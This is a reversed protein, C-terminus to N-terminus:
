IVAREMLVDNWDCEDPAALIDVEWGSVAAREALVQAAVRGAIDGDAAVVLRGPQCPLRVAKLGNASLGAWVSPKGDLLGSALSLATEIGEAIVLYDSGQVLRVAGGAIQGLMTKSPSIDAKGIPTDRLYTRHIEASGSGTVLGVMAPYRYGSLHWCDDVYRLTPPVPGTIGRSRLYAEGLTGRLPRAAEWTAQAQCARKEANRRQEAKHAIEAELNHDEVKNGIPYGLQALSASVHEFSCGAHCKLLVQGRTGDALSLSPNQDDHGPCRATGNGSRWRGNLKATLDRAESM